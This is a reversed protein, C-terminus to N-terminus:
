HNSTLSIVGMSYKKNRKSALLIRSGVKRMECVKFHLILDYDQDVMQSVSLNIVLFDLINLNCNWKLM